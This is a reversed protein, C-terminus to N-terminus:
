RASSAATPADNSGKRQKSRLRCVTQGTVIRSPAARSSTSSRSGAKESSMGACLGVRLTDLPEGSSARRRIARARDQLDHDSLQTLGAELQNVEALSADYSSLDLDIPSGQIRGLWQQWGIRNRIGVTGGRSAAQRAAEAYSHVCEPGAELASTSNRSLPAPHHEHPSPRSYRPRKNTARLHLSSLRRPRSIRCCSGRCCPCPM